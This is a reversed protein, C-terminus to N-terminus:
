PGMVLHISTNARPVVPHAQFALEERGNTLSDGEDPKAPPRLPVSVRMSTETSQADAGAGGLELMAVMRKFVVQPQPLEEDLPGDTVTAMFEVLTGDEKVLPNTSDSPCMDMSAACKM